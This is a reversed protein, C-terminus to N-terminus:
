EFNARVWLLEEKDIFQDKNADLWLAMYLEKFESLPKNDGNNMLSKLTFQYFGEGISIAGHTENLSNGTDKEISIYDTNESGALYKFIFFYSNFDANIDTGAKTFNFLNKDLGACVHLEKGRFVLNFPAAKLKVEYYGNKGEHLRVTDGQIFHINPTQAPAEYFGTLIFALFLIVKKYRNM